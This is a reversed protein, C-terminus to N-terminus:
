SAEKKEEDEDNLIATLTPELLPAANGLGLTVVPIGAEESYTDEVCLGGLAEAASQKTQAEHHKSIFANDVPLNARLTNIVGLAAGHGNDRDYLYPDFSDASLDVKMVRGHLYDFRLWRRNNIEARAEETTMPAPTYHLFGMGQPRAANYLAALVAAKDLGDIAVYGQTEDTM